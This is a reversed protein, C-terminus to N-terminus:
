FIESKANVFSNFIQFKFTNKMKLFEYRDIAVICTVQPNASDVLIPCTESNKMEHSITDDVM